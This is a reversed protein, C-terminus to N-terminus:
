SCRTTTTSPSPASSTAARTPCSRSPSASIARGKVNWDSAKSRKAMGTEFVVFVNPDTGEEVVSM